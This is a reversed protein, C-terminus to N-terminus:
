DLFVLGVLCERHGQKEEQVLVEKRETLELNGLSVEPGQLVLWDETEKTVELEM